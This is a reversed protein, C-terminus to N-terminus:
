DGGVAELLTEGLTAVGLGTTGSAALLAGPELGLDRARDAVARLRRAYPLKDAKTVVVFVPAATVDMLARLAQDDASPPHRIDLLWVVARLGQRTGVVGEVLQRFRARETRAVRAFGYGPLDLLYLSPLRFVNLHQTKGPTGSTRAIRQGVLANLLTSKGVNSRGLFAV